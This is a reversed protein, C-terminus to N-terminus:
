RVRIPIRLEVTSEVPTGNRIAPKFRWQRLADLIARNLSPEHTAQVLEVTTKGDGAVHFRALAITDIEEGLLSDPIRPMPRYYARASM